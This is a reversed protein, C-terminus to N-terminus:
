AARIQRSQKSWNIWDSIEELDPKRGSRIIREGQRTESFPQVIAFLEDPSMSAIQEPTKIGCAVLIQVDHGRLQPVRCMLESQMQWDRINRTRVRKTQLRRAMDDAKGSLLDSVTKVGIRELKRAMKPGIEPADEVPSHRHLYFRLVTENEQHNERHTSERDHQNSPSRADRQTQSDRTQQSDQQLQRRSSGRTTESQTRSRDDYEKQFSVVDRDTRSDRHDSRLKSAETRNNHREIKRASDSRNHSQGSLDTRQQRVRTGRRRIMRGGNSRRVSGATSTSRSSRISSQQSQSSQQPSTRQNTTREENRQPQKTEAHNRTRQQSREQNQRRATAPQPSEITKRQMGETSVIAQVTTKKKRNPERSSWLSRSQRARRVWTGSDRLIEERRWRDLHQWEQASLTRLTSREVRARPTYALQRPTTFGSQVLIQAATQDIMPVQIMLLTQSQLAFLDVPELNLESHQEAFNDPLLELLEGATRIGHSQLVDALRSDISPCEAISSSVELFYRSGRGPTKRRRLQLLRPELVSSARLRTVREASLEPKHPRDFRTQVKPPPPAATRPAPPQQVTVPKPSAKPAERKPAPKPPTAEIVPPVTASGLAKVTGDIRRALERIHDHCTLCVVQTGQGGFDYLMRVVRAAAPHDLHSFEDDLVLPWDAEKRRLQGIMALRISLIVLERTGHGVQESRHWTDSSHRVIVNQSRVSIEIRDHTRDTLQSLMRSADRLLEAATPLEGNSMQHIRHSQDLWARVHAIERSVAQQYELVARLTAAQRNQQEQELRLLETQLQALRLQGSEIAAQLQDRRDCLARQRERDLKIQRVAEQHSNLETSSSSQTQAHRSDHTVRCGCETLCEHEAQGIYQVSRDLESLRQELDARTKHISRLQEQQRAYHSHLECHSIMQCLEHVAAEARTALADRSEATLDSSRLDAIRDEIQRLQSRQQSHQDHHDCNCDSNLASALSRLQREHERATADLAEIAQKLASLQAGSGPRQQPASSTDAARPEPANALRNEAQEILQRGEHIQRNVQELEARARDLQNSTSEIDRHLQGSQQQWDQRQQWGRHLIQEAAMRESDAAAVRSAPTTLSHTRYTRLDQDILRAQEVFQEDYEAIWRTLRHLRNDSTGHSFYVDRLFQTAQQEETSSAKAESMVAPIPLKQAGESSLVEIWTTGSTQETDRHFLSEVLSREIARAVQSKGSANPGHIVNLGDSLGDIRVSKRSNPDRLQISQIRM